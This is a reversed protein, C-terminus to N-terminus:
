LTALRRTMLQVSAMFLWATSSALTAEFDKALRRNRGLWADTEASGPSPASWWGAAPLLVFTRKATDSRKIIEIEWDGRGVM